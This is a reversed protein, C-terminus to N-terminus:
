KKRSFTHEVFYTLVNEQSHKEGCDGTESLMTASLCFISNLFYKERLFDFSILQKEM